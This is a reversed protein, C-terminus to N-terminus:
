FIMKLAFQFNRPTGASTITGFGAVGVTTNAWGLPPANFVNFAEARFQVVLREIPQFSKFVALDFNTLGPSQLIYRGENGFRYPQNKAFASANFWLAASPNPLHWDGVVDPRDNEGTNLPDGQVQLNMPFGTHLTAIGTATWGGLVGNPLRGWNGGFKKGRGAPLEYVWSGVFSHRLDQQVLSREARLNTPDQVGWANYGNPSAEGNMWGADGIAKSWTYAALFSLGKSFRKEARAQLSHYVSNANYRFSNTSSLPVFIATGPFLTSIFRRRPNIAGPGPLAYNLDYKQIIHNAKSGFYGIQFLIGAPLQRQVNLNWQQAVPSKGNREFSSLSAAPANAPNLNDAPLGDQVRFMPNAPDQSFSIAFHYPPNIEMFEGGGTNALNAYFLGYGGRLVTSQGLRYAFGFRPALNRMNINQLARSGRDSGKSAAVVLSPSNPNSDMDFNTIRNGKEVWPLNVEYRLGLNLSLRDTVKWDDQVYQQLWPARLRMTRFNEDSYGTSVGLLMDAFPQGGVLTSTQRTFQGNFGFGGLAGTPQLLYSQLWFIVQGFKVTHHSRMWTFDISEQRTQSGIEAFSNGQPGQVGLGSFGTPSFTASGPLTTDLGNNQIVGIVPNVPKEPTSFLDDLMNWGIRASFVFNSKLIRNYVLATHYSSYDADQGQKMLGDPSDPLGPIRPANRDQRSFRVYYNDKASLTQDFRLDWNIDDEKVPVVWTYNNAASAVQPAPWWNM